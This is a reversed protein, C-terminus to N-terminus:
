DEHASSTKEKYERVLGLYTNQADHDSVNNDELFLRLKDEEMAIAEFLLIRNCIQHAKSVIEELADCDNNETM